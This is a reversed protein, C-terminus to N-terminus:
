KGAHLAQWANNADHRGVAVCMYLAQQGDRIIVTGRRICERDEEVPKKLPYGKDM